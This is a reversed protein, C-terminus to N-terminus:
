VHDSLGATSYLVSMTQLQLALPLGKWAPSLPVSVPKM